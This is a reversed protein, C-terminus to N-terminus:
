KASVSKLDKEEDRLHAVIVLFIDKEDLFLSIQHLVMIVCDRAVNPASISKKMNLLADVTNKRFLIVTAAENCQM